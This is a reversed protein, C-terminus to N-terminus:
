LIFRICNEWNKNSLSFYRYIFKAFKNIFTWIKNSYNHLATLFYANRESEGLMNSLHAECVNLISSLKGSFLLFSPRSFQEEFDILVLGGDYNYCITVCFCNRVSDTIPKFCKILDIFTVFRYKKKESCVLQGDHPLM